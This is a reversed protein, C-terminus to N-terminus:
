FTKIHLHFTQILFFRFFNRYKTTIRDFWKLQHWLSTNTPLINFYRDGCLWVLFSVTWTSKCFLFNSSYVLLRWPCCSRFSFLEAIHWSWTPVADDTDGFHLHTYIQKHTHTHTHTHTHVNLHLTRIPIERYGVLGVWATSLLLSFFSRRQVVGDENQLPRPRKQAPATEYWLFSLRSSPRRWAIIYM